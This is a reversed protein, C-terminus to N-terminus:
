KGKRIEENRKWVEKGIGEKVQGDTKELSTRQEELSWAELVNDQDIALSVPAKSTASPDHKRTLTSM